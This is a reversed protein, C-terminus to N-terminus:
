DEFPDHDMDVSFGLTKWSDQLEPPLPISVNLIKGTVPHTLSIRAAHLHLRKPLELGGIHAEAGGYKEDGLVPCGLVDAAHVRIQHTRGTHPHFVVFAAEKGARELVIFDTLAPKGNDEDIIMKEKDIGGAKLLPANIAGENQEPASVTIAWYTKKVDRGKFLKGLERAMEASRALLLVGSTEKDLRHVLRPKIGKRDKLADLMGDIHRRTKSGGQVALGHPKNLALVDGDDYIVLSRIFDSDEKSVPRPSEVPRDEMPPIRIEQGAALRTDARARKGDVRIQGKRMFKQALTYPLGPVHKKLWRDLRQGNDDETVHSYRVGSM